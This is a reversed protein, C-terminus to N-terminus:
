CVTGHCSMFEFTKMFGRTHRMCFRVASSDKPYTLFNEVFFYETQLNTKNEKVYVYEPSRMILGSSFSAIKDNARINSLGDRAILVILELLFFVSVVGSAKQIFIKLRFQQKSVM